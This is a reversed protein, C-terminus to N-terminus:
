GARGGRLVRAFGLGGSSAYIVFSDAVEHLMRQAAHKATDRDARDMAVAFCVQSFSAGLDRSSTKQCFELRASWTGDGADWVVAKITAEPTTSEYPGDTWVLEKELPARNAEAEGQTSPEDAKACAEAATFGGSAFRARLKRVNAAAVDALTLGFAQAVGEVLRLMDGLYMALNERSEALPLGHFATKKMTDAFWGAATQMARVRESAFLSSWDRGEQERVGRPSYGLRTAATVVYWLVDGLELLVHRARFQLVPETSGIGPLAGAAEELETAEGALGLACCVLMKEDPWREAEGRMTSLEREYTELDM